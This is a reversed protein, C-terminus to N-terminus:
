CCDDGFLDNHKNFKNVTIRVLSCQALARACVRTKKLPNRKIERNFISLKTTSELNLKKKENKAVVM